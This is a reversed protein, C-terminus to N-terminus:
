GFPSRHPSRSGSFFVGPGLAIVSMSWGRCMCMPPFRSYSRGGDQVNRIEPWDFAVFRGSDAANRFLRQKDCSKGRKKGRSRPRLVLLLLAVGDACHSRMAFQNDQGEILSHKPLALRNLRAWWV